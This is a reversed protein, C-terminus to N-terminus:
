VLSTFPTCYSCTNCFPVRTSCTRVEGAVGKENLALWARHGYPSNLFTHTDSPSALCVAILLRSSSPRVALRRLGEGPTRVLPPQQFVHPRQYPRSRVLRLHCQLPPLRLTWFDTGLERTLRTLPSAWFLSLSVAIRGRHNRTAFLPPCFSARPNPRDNAPAGLRGGCLRAGCTCRVRGCRGEVGKQSYSAAM